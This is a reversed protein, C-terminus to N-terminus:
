RLEYLCHSMKSGPGCNQLDSELNLAQILILSQSSPCIPPRSSSRLHTFWRAKYYLNCFPMSLTGKENLVSIALPMFKAKRDWTVGCCFHLSSM